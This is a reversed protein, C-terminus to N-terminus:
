TPKGWGNEIGTAVWSQQALAICGGQDCGLIIAQM